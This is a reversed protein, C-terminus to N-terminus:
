KAYDSFIARCCNSGRLFFVIKYVETFNILYTKKQILCIYKVAVYDLTSRVPVVLISQYLCHRRIRYSQSPHM